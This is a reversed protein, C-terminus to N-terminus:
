AGAIYADVFSWGIFGTSDTGVRASEGELDRILTDPDVLRSLGV